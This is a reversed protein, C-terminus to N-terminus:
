PIEYPFGPSEGAISVFDYVQEAEFHANRHNFKIGCDELGEKLLREVREHKLLTEEVETIKGKQLRKWATLNNPDPGAWEDNEFLYEKIEQIEKETFEDNMNDIRRKAKEFDADPFMERTEDLDVIEKISEKEKQSFKVSKNSLHKKISKADDKRMIKAYEKHLEKKPEAKPTINKDAKQATGGSMELRPADARAQKRILTSNTPGSMANELRPGTLVAKLKQWLDDFFRVMMGPANRKAQNLGDNLRDLAAHADKLRDPVLAKIRNLRARVGTILKNFLDLTQRHMTDLGGDELMKLYRVVNGEALGNFVKAIQALPVSKFVSKLM